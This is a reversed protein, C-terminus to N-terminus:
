GVAEADSRERHRRPHPTWLMPSRWCHERADDARQGQIARTPTSNLGTSPWGGVARLRRSRGHEVSAGFRPWTRACSPMSYVIAAWTKHEPRLVKRIDLPPYLKRHLRPEVVWQTGNGFGPQSVRLWGVGERRMCREVFLSSKVWPTAIAVRHARGVWRMAQEVLRLSFSCKCEVVMSEVRVAVIDAVDGARSSQVEQYVDWEDAALWDVVVRALEEETAPWLRRRM